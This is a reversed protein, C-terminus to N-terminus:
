KREIFVLLNHLIQTADRCRGFPMLCRFVRQGGFALFYSQGRTRKTGQERRRELLQLFNRCFRGLNFARGIQAHAPNLPYEADIRRSQHRPRTDLQDFHAM